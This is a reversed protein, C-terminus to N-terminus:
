KDLQLLHHSKAPSSPVRPTPNEVVKNMMLTVTYSLSLPPTRMRMKFLALLRKFTTLVQSSILRSLILLSGEKWHLAM